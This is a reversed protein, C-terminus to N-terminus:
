VYEFISHICEFVNLYVIFVKLYVINTCEFANM